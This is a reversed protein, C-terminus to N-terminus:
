AQAPAEPAPTAPAAAAAAPTAQVPKHARPPKVVTSGKMCGTCLRLRVAKGDVFTRVTQLNPAYSRRTKGTTKKGIGGKKKAIGRRTYMRGRASHKGCITCVRAM